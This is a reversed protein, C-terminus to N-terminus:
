QQEAEFSTLQVSTGKEGMVIAMYTNDYDDCTMNHYAVGQDIGNILFSLTKQEMNLRMEIQDNVKWDSGYMDGFRDAKSYRAGNCCKAWYTSITDNPHRTSMTFDDNIIKEVNNNFSHIGILMESIYEDTNDEIGASIIKFVWKYLFPKNRQYVNKGYVSVWKDGSLSAIYNDQSLMINEDHEDFAEIEHYFYLITHVVLSPICFYPHNILLRKHCEKVYGSVLHLKNSPISKADRLFAEM